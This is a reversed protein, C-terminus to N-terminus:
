PAFRRLAAHGFHTADPPHIRFAKPSSAVPDCSTPVTRECATEPPVGPSRNSIARDIQRRKSDRRAVGLDEDRVRRGRMVVTRRRLAPTARWLGDPRKAL